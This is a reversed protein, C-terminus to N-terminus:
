EKGQKRREALAARLRALNRKAKAIERPSETDRAFELEAERQVEGPKKKRAQQVSPLYGAPDGKPM